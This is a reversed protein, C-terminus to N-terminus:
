RQMFDQLGASLSKQASRYRTKMTNVPQGLLEAFYDWTFNVSKDLRQAQTWVLFVLLELEDLEASEGAISATMLKNRASEFVSAVDAESMKNLEALHRWELRQAPEWYESEHRLLWAARQEVPLAPVLVQTLHEILENDSTQQEANQESDAVTNIYFDEVGEEFENGSGAKYGDTLVDREKGTKRYFDIVVNSALKSLYHAFKDEDKYRDLNRVVRSWLEQQLDKADSDNGVKSLFRAYMQDHYRNLLVRIAADSIGRQRVYL